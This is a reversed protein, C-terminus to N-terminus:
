LPSLLVVQCPRISNLHFTEINERTRNLTLQITLLLDLLWVRCKTELELLPLTAAASQAQIPTLRLEALLASVQINRPKVPNLPNINIVDNLLLSRLDLQLDIRPLTLPTRGETEMGEPDVFWEM